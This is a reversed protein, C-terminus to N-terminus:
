IINGKNEGSGGMSEFVTQYIKMSAIFGSILDTLGSKNNQRHLSYTVHANHSYFQVLIYLIYM